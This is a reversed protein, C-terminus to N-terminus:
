TMGIITSGSSLNNIKTRSALEYVDEGYELYGDEPVEFENGNIIQKAKAENYLSAAIVNGSMDMKVTSRSYSETSVLNEVSNEGFEFDGENLFLTIFEEDESIFYDLNGENKLIDLQQILTLEPDEQPPDGSSVFFSIQFIILLIFFVLITKRKLM